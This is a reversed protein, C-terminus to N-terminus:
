KNIIRIPNDIEVIQHDVRIRHISELWRSWACFRSGDRIDNEIWKWGSLDSSISYNEEGFIRFHGEVDGYM